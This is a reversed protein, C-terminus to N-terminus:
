FWYENMKKLLKKSVHVYENDYIISDIGCCPCIATQDDDCWEEILKPDFIELCYFCGCSESKLLQERNYSSYIHAFIKLDNINM